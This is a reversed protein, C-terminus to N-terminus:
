DVEELYYGNPWCGESCHSNMHGDGEGKKGTVGGHLREEGCKPCTFTLHCSESKYRFPVAVVAITPIDDGAKYKIEGRKM